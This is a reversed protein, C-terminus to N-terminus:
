RGENGNGGGTGETRGINRVQKGAKRRRGGGGTIKVSKVWTGTDGDTLPNGVADRIAEDQDRADGAPAAEAPAWEHACMPCTLLAGSEYTYESSCEPCPPLTLEQTSM